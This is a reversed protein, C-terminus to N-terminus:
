GQTVAIEPPSTLFFSEPDGSIIGTGAEPNVGVGNINVSFVMRTLLAPPVLSAISAQFVAQLEFLNIPQGVAIGNVYDALAQAGLQQVAADSVVNSATTNWTLAITVSQQPPNVFVLNYRDPYDIITVPVNRLNPTVVGGSTYATYGSTDVNLKFTKETVVTITYSNGNVEVMGVVGNLQVVQGTLYGHNLDTTVVGNAAKTIGLVHLVSGVITNIDFLATWIANAVEYPDGGGVIIEWGGNDPVQVVSVLRPQVGVVQGLLTKLYRAMGQSAALGAQLVRGRYSAETEGTAVGPTGPEPNSCTLSFGTPVSTVLQTVTGAPIAWSGQITALCFLAPSQGGSGVMGGDQVTYQFTGDSVVFGQPISYGPTGSFVVYVSTNTAQGIQVGYVNGLQTLLWVNAAYPTLSNILEAAAQDCLVIGAVDTSSIDEVLSGPLNATYGPNTAAVAALLNALITAPPAPVYGAPGIIVPLDAM